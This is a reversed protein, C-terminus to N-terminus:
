WMFGYRLKIGYGITRINGDAGTNAASFASVMGFDPPSAADYSIVSGSADGKRLDNLGYDLYVGLYLCHEGGLPQRIGTELLLSYSTDLELDQISATGPGQDGYGMFAPGHLEVDWEPYYGSTALRDYTSSYGAESLLGIGIGASAYFRTVAGSSSYQLRLPVQIYKAHQQERYGELTYRFELADGEEDTAEYGDSLRAYSVSSRYERYNVGTHLSWNANFRYGYAVGIGAGDRAHYVGGPGADYRLSQFPGSVSASVEHHQANLGGVCLLCLFLYFPISRQKRPYAINRM